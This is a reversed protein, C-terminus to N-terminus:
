YEMCYLTVKVKLVKFIMLIGYLIFKGKGKVKLVKFIMLIGYLIFEFIAIKMKFSSSRLLYIFLFVHRSM